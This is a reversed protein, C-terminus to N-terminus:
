KWANSAPTIVQPSAQLGSLDFPVEFDARVFVLGDETLQPSKRIFDCFEGEPRDLFLRTKGTSNWGSPGPRLPNPPGRVEPNQGVPPCAGEAREKVILLIFNNM